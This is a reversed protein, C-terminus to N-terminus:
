GNAPSIRECALFVRSGSGGQLNIPERPRLDADRPSIERAGDMSAGGEPPSFGREAAEGSAVGGTPKTRDPGGRTRVLVRWAM